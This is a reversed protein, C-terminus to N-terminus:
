LYCFYQTDMKRKIISLESNLIVQRLLGFGVFPQLALPLLLLHEIRYGDYKFMQQIEMLDKKLM